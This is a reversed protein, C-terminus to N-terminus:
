GNDQFNVQSELTELDTRIWLRRKVNHTLMLGNIKIEVLQGERSVRLSMEEVILRPEFTRLAGMIQKEIEGPDNVVRGLIGRLGYGLVSAAARPYKRRLNSDALGIPAIANFLWELERVVSDRHGDDQGTSDDGGISRHAGTRSGDNRPATLRDLLNAKVYISGFEPIDQM